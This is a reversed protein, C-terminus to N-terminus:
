SGYYDLFLLLYIFRPLVDRPRVFLNLTSTGGPGFVGYTVANVYRLDASTSTVTVDRHRTYM